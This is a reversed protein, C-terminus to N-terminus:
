LAEEKGESIDYTEMYTVYINVGCIKRPPAAILIYLLMGCGVRGVLILKYLSLTFFWAVPIGSFFISNQRPSVIKTQSAKSQKQHLSDKSQRHIVVIVLTGFILLLVSCFLITHLLLLLHYIANINTTDM